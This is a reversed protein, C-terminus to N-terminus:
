IVQLQQLYSYMKQHLLRGDTCYILLLNNLLKVGNQFNDSTDSLVVLM